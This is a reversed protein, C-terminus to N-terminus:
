RRLPAFFAPSMLQNEQSVLYGAEASRALYATWEPDAQLLARRASRDAASDYVWIHMYSNQRGSEAIMYVLPDGLHRRQVEFGHAAYLELHKRLTGPRTTYTRVDLLM